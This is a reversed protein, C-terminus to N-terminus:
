HMPKQENKCHNGARFQCLFFLGLKDTNSENKRMQVMSRKTM